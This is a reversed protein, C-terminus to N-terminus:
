AKEESSGKNYYNSGTLIIVVRVVHESFMVLWSGVIVQHWSVISKMLIANVMM